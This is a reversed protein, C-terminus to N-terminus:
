GFLISKALDYVSRPAFAERAIERYPADGAFVSWLIHAQSGKQGATGDTVCKLLADSFRGKRLVGEYIGFLVKGWLNDYRFQRICTRHFHNRLAKESIGFRLIGEALIRATEYSSEIGNKLYRSIFADGVIAFRDSFPNQAIGVPVKPHCHCLVNAEPPLLGSLVPNEARERELDAIRVHEGIGTLTLFNDKPTIALFRITRGRAPVIHIRNRLRGVIFENDAPVEAQVTHWTRPPVYGAALKRTIVSNVGFAGVLFDFNRPKGEATGVSFGGPIRQVSEVREHVFEAGRAVTADLLFQDFSKRGGLSAVPGGGRFVTYITGREPNVVTVSVDRGHIEYGDAIRRIVREELPLGLGEIKRVMEGGIAGACMNCGSPGSCDFVKRDFLTIRASRGSEVLSKLLHLAFFTGAPGAGIVGIAPEHPLSTMTM